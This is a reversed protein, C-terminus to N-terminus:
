GHCGKGQEKRGIIQWDDSNLALLHQYAVPLGHAVIDLAAVDCRGMVWSGDIDRLM